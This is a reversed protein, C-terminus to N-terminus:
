SNSFFLYNSFNFIKLCPFFILCKALKRQAIMKVSKLLSVERGPGARISKRRQLYVDVCALCVSMMLVILRSFLVLPDVVVTENNVKISPKLTALTVAKQSRKVSAGNWPFNDLSEQIRQGIVEAQDCNVEESAILGSDLAQLSTRNHDFPDHSSLDLWGKIKQLDIFDRQLRSKGLDEHQLSSDRTNNTLSSLATHYSGGAHMSYIWLIRASETFGSGRTLGGKSKIARMRVQEITLDPWLGAWYRDSRRAVFLGEKAFKHHLWPHKEPLDSMQQLYIRTSKVYNHHGTAAFLNMMKSASHLHLTWDSTRASRIFNRCTEIYEIYQIWLRATRSNECLFAKKEEVIQKMKQLPTINMDYEGNKSTVNTYLEQIQEMDVCREESEHTNGQLAIEQLKIVLASETLIHARNARATAKGSMTNQQMKAMFQTFCSLFGQVTWLTVLVAMFPCLCIFDGM